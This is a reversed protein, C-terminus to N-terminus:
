GYRIKSQRPIEARKNSKVIFVIFIISVVILPLLILIKLKSIINVNLM